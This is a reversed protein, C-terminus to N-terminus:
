TSFQGRDIGDGSAQIASFKAPVVTISVRTKFSIILIMDPLLMGDDADWVVFATEGRM